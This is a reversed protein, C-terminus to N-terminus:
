QAEGLLRDAPSLKRHANRAREAAASRGYRDLMQRSKWGGLQMLDGETGGSAIWQHAFTHRFQHAHVKPIGAQAARREIMQAVGSDSLAGKPGLWLAQSSAQPHRRRLRLYRDIAQMATAGVAVLRQRNGKGTVLLTSHDFDVDTMGIGALEARRIGTDLLVALIATDRRDEFKSGNCADLLRRVINNVAVRFEGYVTV